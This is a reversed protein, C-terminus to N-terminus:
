MKCQFSHVNPMGINLKFIQGAKLPHLCTRSGLQHVWSWWWSSGLGRMQFSVRVEKDSLRILHCMISISIFTTIWGIRLGVVEASHTFLRQFFLLQLGVEKFAVRGFIELHDLRHFLQCCYPVSASSRYLDERCWYWHKKHCWKLYEMMMTM